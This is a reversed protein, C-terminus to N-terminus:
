FIAQQLSPHDPDGYHAHFHKHTGVPCVMLHTPLVCDRTSCLHHVHKGRGEAKAWDQLDLPSDVMGILRSATTTPLDQVTIGENPFVNALWYPPISVYGNDKSGATFRLCPLQDDQSLVDDYVSNDLVAKAVKLALEFSYPRSHQHEWQKNITDIERSSFSRLLMSPRINHIRLPPTTLLASDTAFVGTILPNRVFGVGDQLVLLAHEHLIRRVEDASWLHYSKKEGNVNRSPHKTKPKSPLAKLMKGYSIALGRDRQNHLAQTVQQTSFEDDDYEVLWEALRVIRRWKEAKPDPLAHALAALQAAEYAGIM